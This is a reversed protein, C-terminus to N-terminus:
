VLLATYDSHGFCSRLCGSDQARDRGGTLHFKAQPTWLRWSHLPLLSVISFTYVRASYRSLVHEQPNRVLKVVIGASHSTQVNSSEQM